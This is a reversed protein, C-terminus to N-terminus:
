LLVSCGVTGTVTGSTIAVQVRWTRPLPYSERALTATFSIPQGPFTTASITGAGTATVAPASRVVDYYQGSAVDKGQIAFIYSPSGSTATVNLLCNAGVGNFNIQDASNITSAQAALALMGTVDFNGLQPQTVVGILIVLNATGAATVASINAPIPLNTAAALCQGPSVGQGQNAVAVPAAGYATWAVSTGTNCIYTYPPVSTSGPLAPIAVSAATTTVALSASAAQTFSLGIQPNAPFQQPLPQALVLLTSLLWWGAM